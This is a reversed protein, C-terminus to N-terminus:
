LNRRRRFLVQATKLCILIDLWLSWNEIYYVDLLYEDEFDLDSRGSVQAMGTIGPKITLLRRHYESYKVVEREQHPRPGVLSMEGQLVNFFQPLEDFSFREIFKGVRSRRPDEKIKYLPGTRVSRSAILEKEFALAKEWDPNEPTTCCEWKMYRFKYVLFKRGNAGIRENKFIIPGKGELRILLAILLMLPGSLIILVVSGIVDFTRKLIRGWGDLPTAKVEIVPEGELIRMEVRSTQLATPVYQFTINHIACYDILKEQEADTIMGDCVLVEDIGKEEKIKKLQVISGSDLQGIIEYGLKPNSQIIKKLKKIRGDVGILLLRHVGIKKHVLLWQQVKRLIYRGLVVAFSGMLWSALLIFRSAFWARQLFIALVIIVFGVSTAVFIKLMERWFKRTTRIEYLGEFAYIVLFFPVAFLAFNFYQEKFPFDAYNIPTLQLHLYKVLFEPLNRIAFAGSMGAVLMAFDVPVQFASFFLESKKM